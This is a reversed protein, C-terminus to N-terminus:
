ARQAEAVAIWLEHIDSEDEEAHDDMQCYLCADSTGLGDPVARTVAHLAISPYDIQFTKDGSFVLHQETLWLHGQLTASEGGGLAPPVPELRLLADADFVLVEPGAAFSQPTTSQAEERSVFAPPADIPTLM